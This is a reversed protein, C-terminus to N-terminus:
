QRAAAWEAVPDVWEPLPRYLFGHSLGTDIVIERAVIGAGAGTKVNQGWPTCPPGTDDSRERIALLRGAPEKGEEERIARLNESLCFGLLCFRVGPNQLRASALAAIEAGMSAGVVTVRDAPVGSALLSRVQAVVRDASESTSSQKPRMEGSVVFGQRRFTELIRDLEYYGYQPHRPRASQQEQIIRGHVYILHRPGAAEAGLVGGTGFLLAAIAALASLVRDCEPPM